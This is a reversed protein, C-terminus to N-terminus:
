HPCIQLIRCHSGLDRILLMYDLCVVVRIIDSYIDGLAAVLCSRHSLRCAVEGLIIELNVHTELDFGLM